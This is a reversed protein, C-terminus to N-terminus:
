LQRPEIQIVTYGTLDVSTGFFRTYYTHRLKVWVGLYDPPGGNAATQNVARDTPCWASDISGAGCGFKTKPQQLDAASYSNCKGSVSGTECATTPAKSFNSGSGTVTSKYVVVRLLKGEGAAAANKKVAQIIDWDAYGDNAATSGVRAGATTINTVTLKDSYASGFEIIAFLFLFFIPTIFVAELLTAGRDGRRRRARVRRM